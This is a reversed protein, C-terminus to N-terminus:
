CRSPAAPSCRWGRRPAQRRGSLGAASRDAFRPPLHRPALALMRRLRGPLLAAFPRALQALRLSLRFRGPYPLVAALLRRLLAIPRAAPSLDGRYAARRSRGSAHLQRGVPLHDHLLPLLPLPRYPAGGHGLRRAGNELMDKISISAGARATSSTASCFSLDSLHRHLLRLPRLHAPDERVGRCRPDALQALRSIPRCPRESGRICAAPISSAAGSRLEGEGARRARGAGAGPAPLCRGGRAALHPARMLTAHGGAPQAGRPHARGRCRGRRAAGALDARRGLRLLAPGGDRGIRSRRCSPLAPPRRCRSAGSRRTRARSRRVDRLARWLPSPRRGGRMEVGRRRWAGAAALRHARRGLASGELRLLTAAGSGPLCFAHSRRGASAGRGLGGRRSGLARRMIAVAAADDLGSSCCRASMSRAGAAGQRDGRDAGGAHRLQGGAAQCLDYGTVNKVVRGGAKFMEGRGNVRSRLGPFSRAGRGGELRRPGSLNCALMGGLTAEGTPRRSRGWIRRSSPWCRASPRWRREIEALPTGAGATLVLEEPEYLVSARSGRCISASAATSPGASGASAARASRDGAAGASALVARPSSRRRERSSRGDCMLLAASRSAAAQRRSM